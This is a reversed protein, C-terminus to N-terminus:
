EVVAWDSPLEGEGMLNKVIPLLIETAIEGSNTESMMFHGNGEFGNDALQVFRASVGMQKLQNVACTFAEDTQNGHESRIIVVPIDALSVNKSVAGEPQMMCGGGVDVPAFDAPLAPEWTAAARNAENLLDVGGEFILLGKVKGAPATLGALITSAVGASHGFLVTPGIRDALAVINARALENGGYPGASSTALWGIVGPNQANAATWAERGWEGAPLVADPWHESSALGGIITSDAQGVMGKADDPGFAPNSPSRGLGPRDIWYTDIGANVFYNRWGDRGDVTSFWDSSQGGGGHILVLPIDSSKEAPLAFGVYSQGSITVGGKENPESITGGVTFNGMERLSLPGAEGFASAPSVMATAAMLGMAVATAAKTMM